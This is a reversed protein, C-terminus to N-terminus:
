KLMFKDTGILKGECFIDVNYNGPLLSGDNKWYICVDTDTNQYDIERKATYLISDNIYWFLENDPNPLIKKDEGSIRIYIVKSGPTVIRNEAITFCVRLKEVRRAKIIEKGRDNIGTSVINIARLTKAIEIKETLENAKQAIQEKETVVKQYESKVRRNEETLLKNRTNLSDIQVIYSKMINRLTEVEKKYQNIQYYSASKVRKIEELLEIIKNKEQELRKTLTDNNVKLQNYQELMQNLEAEIKKKEEETNELAVQM